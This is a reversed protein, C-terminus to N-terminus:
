QPSNEQQGFEAEIKKVFTDIDQVIARYDESVQEQSKTALCFIRYAADKILGVLRSDTDIGNTIIWRDIAQRSLGLLEEKGKSNGNVLHVIRRQAAMRSNFENM